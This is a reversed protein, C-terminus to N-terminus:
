PMLYFGLQKQNEYSIDTIFLGLFRGGPRTGPGTSVIKATFAVVQENPLTVELYFKDDVEHSYSRMESEGVEMGLGQQSVDRVRGLLKVNSPADVPRYLCRADVEKRYHLRQQSSWKIKDKQKTQVVAKKASLKAILKRTRALRRLPQRVIFQFIPPMKEYEKLFWLRHWAEIEADQNARASASYPETGKDLMAIEGFVEGPGLLAVPVEKRGYQTFLLVEGKLIRYLSIGYDGQKVILDGKKFKLTVVPPLSDSQSTM